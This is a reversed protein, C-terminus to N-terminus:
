IFAFAALVSALGGFVVVQASSKKPEAAKVKACEATLASGVTTVDAATINLTSQCASLFSNFAKINADNCVCSTQAATINTSFAKLDMEATGNGVNLNCDTAVKALPTMASQCAAPVNALSM